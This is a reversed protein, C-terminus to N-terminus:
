SRSTTPRNTWPRAINSTAACPATTTGFLFSELFYGAEDEDMLLISGTPVADCYYDGSGNDAPFRRVTVAQVHFAISADKRISLATKTKM